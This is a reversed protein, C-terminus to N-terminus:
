DTVMQVHTAVESKLFQLIILGPFSAIFAWIYFNVWGLNTVLIGALPGLFVRGLSAIATFLAFQTASFRHNCLSTLFALFAATSLGSCFNEIFIAASMCAFNKGIMALAVFTLNSFAQAFGFLLLARYINIRTLLVGGLLCGLITAVMSMIKYAVGVEVLTFGLGKLLFTIMLSLALADGVKYLVIFLLILLINNRQLLDGLAQKVTQYFQPASALQKPQPAFYSPVIGLLIILGMLEYTLKWGLYQALILVIGSSFLMAMRYAFVFFAIGLGQEEPPLVDTRYADIAVDQSASFFAIFLAVMGMLSAQNQPQLQALWFLSISVGIQTLMIWGRRKGIPLSFHDMLPAWLFKFTYPVGILTLMGITVLRVDNQTFWAQLTSGSLALPLGSLFGLVLMTRLRLSIFKKDILSM